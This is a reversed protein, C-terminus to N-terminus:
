FLSSMTEMKSEIERWEMELLSKPVIGGGAYLQLSNNLIKMSRLNVYLEVNEEGIEGCFGSYYERNYGENEIIFRFAEEKPVGCIAPTPYLQSLLDGINISKDVQFDFDSKLHVLSAAEVTYPESLTYKLNLKNLKSAIFDVVYRQEERNKDSWTSDKLYDDKRQTGALAVSRCQAGEKSLLIEPTSGFWLGTQPTYFLFNYASPYKSIARKFLEILNFNKPIDIEKSQSLVLKKIAYSDGDIAVRDQELRNKFINFRESYLEKQNNKFIDGDKLIPFNASIFSEACELAQIGKYCLPSELILLPTSDTIKFPAIIYGRRGGLATLSDIAEIKSSDEQLLFEVERDPVKHLAFGFESSM